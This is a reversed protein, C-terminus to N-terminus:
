RPKINSNGTKLGFQAGQEQLVEYVGSQRETARGAPREEKPYMIVNNM